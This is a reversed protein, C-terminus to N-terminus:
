PRFSPAQRHTDHDCEVGNLTNSVLSPAQLKFSSAQLKNFNPGEVMPQIKM